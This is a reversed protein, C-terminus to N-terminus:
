HQAQPGPAAKEVVRRVQALVEDVARKQAETLNPNSALGDLAAVAEPFRRYIIHRKANMEAKKLDGESQNFAADLKPWDVRVGNEELHRENPRNPPGCGALSLLGVAALACLLNLTRM